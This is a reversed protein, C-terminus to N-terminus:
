LCYYAIPYQSEDVRFQRFFLSILPNNIQSKSVEELLPNSSRKKRRQPNGRAM